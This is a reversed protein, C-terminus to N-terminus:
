KRSCMLLLPPWFSQNGSGEIIIKELEEATLPEKYPRESTLANYVDAITMLRGLLPIDEGKLGAPYGSGDWEEHHVGVIIEAYQLLFSCMKM